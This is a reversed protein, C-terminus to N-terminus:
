QPELSTSYKVAVQITEDISKFFDGAQKNLAEAEDTLESIGGPNLNQGLYLVQDNLAGIFAEFDEGAKGGAEFIKNYNEKTENMRGESKARMDESNFGALSEEWEGFYKDAVKQMSDAKARVDERASMCKDIDKGLKKYEAKPDQAKGEVIYNYSELTKKVQLNAARISSTTQQARYVLKDANKLGATQAEAVGLTSIMLAAMLATTFLMKRM